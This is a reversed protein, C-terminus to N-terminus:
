RIIIPQRINNVESLILYIWKGRLIKMKWGGCFSMTETKGNARYVEQNEKKLWGTLHMSICIKINQSILLNKTDKRELWRVVSADLVNMVVSTDSM